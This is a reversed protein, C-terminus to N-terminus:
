TAESIRPVQVEQVPAIFRYGRRPRNQIYRAIAASEGLVERIRGVANHLSHDFDVFTDAPWLQSSLEERTVLNGASQLLIALLQLPQGQLRLKVGRKRLEGARLDLEYVDFRLVRVAPTSALM